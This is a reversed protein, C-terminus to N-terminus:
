FDNQIGELTIEMSISTLNTVADELMQSYLEDPESIFQTTNTISTPILFGKLTNRYFTRIIEELKILDCDQINKNKAKKFFQTEQLFLKIEDDLLNPAQKLITKTALQM